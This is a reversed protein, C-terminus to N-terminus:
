SWLIKSPSAAAHNLPIKESKRKICDRGPNQGLSRRICPGQMVRTRDPQDAIKASQKGTVRILGLRLARKKLSIPSLRFPSRSTRNPKTPNQSIHSTLSPPSRAMVPCKLANSAFKVRPGGWSILSNRLRRQILKLDPRM